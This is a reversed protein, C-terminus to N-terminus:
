IQVGKYPKNQLKNIREVTVLTRVEDENVVIFRWGCKSVYYETKDTHIRMRYLRHGLCGIEREAKMLLKHLIADPDNVGDPYAWPLRELFKTRAHATITLNKLRM